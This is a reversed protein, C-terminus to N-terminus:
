AKALCEALRDLAETWGRVHEDRVTVSEFVAQHLTLRTKGGEDAFTVTVLTEHGTKGTADEFTYTFVLREPEVIERYGFHQWVDPGHPRAHM